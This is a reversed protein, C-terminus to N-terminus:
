GFLVDKISFVGEKGVIYEAALVAGLAFGERNHATHRIEIDDIGSSYKVTHTGPVNDVRHAVIPLIENNNEFNLAWAKKHVLHKMIQEAITIATGSPADKKHIHHTEEITVNYETHSKMM